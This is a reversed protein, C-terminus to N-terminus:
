MRTRRSVVLWIIMMTMSQTTYAMHRHQIDRALDQLFEPSNDEQWDDLVDWRHLGQQSKNRENDEVIFELTLMIFTM